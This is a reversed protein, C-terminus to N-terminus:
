NSHVRSSSWKPLVLGACPKLGRRTASMASTASTSAPLPPVIDTEEEEADDLFAGPIRRTLQAMIQASRTRTM